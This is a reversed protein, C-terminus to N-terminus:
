PNVLMTFSPNTLAASAAATEAGNAAVINEVWSITITCTAQSTASAATCSISASATPGVVQQLNTAWTQLDYAAMKHATCPASTAVKPTPTTATSCNITGSLTTDGSSVTAGFVNASVTNASWFNRDAQITGSLSDAEIAALARLRAGTTNSLALAQMKAIGLLGISIILLAVMVEVLSFGGARVKMTPDKLLM